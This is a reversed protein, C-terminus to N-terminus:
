TDVAEIVGLVVGWTCTFRGFGTETPVITQSALSNINKAPKNAIYKVTRAVSGLSSHAWPGECRLTGWASITM